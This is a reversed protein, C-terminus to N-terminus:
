LTERPLNKMKITPSLTFLTFIQILKRSQPTVTLIDSFHDQVPRLKQIFMLNTEM